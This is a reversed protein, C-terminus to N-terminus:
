IVRWTFSCAYCSFRCQVYPIRGDWRPRMTLLATDADIAMRLRCHERLVLLSMDLTNFDDNSSDMHVLASDSSLTQVCRELTTRAGSHACAYAHVAQSADSPHDICPALM